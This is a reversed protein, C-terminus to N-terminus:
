IMSQKSQKRSLNKNQMMIKTQKLKADASKSIVAVVASANGYAAGVTLEKKSSEGNRFKKFLEDKFAKDTLENGSKLM